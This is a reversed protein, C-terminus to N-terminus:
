LHTITSRRMNTESPLARLLFASYLRKEDADSRVIEFGAARMTEGIRRDLLLSHYHWGKYKPLDLKYIYEGWVIPARRALKWYLYNKLYSFVTSEESLGEANLFVTGNDKVIRRLAKLFRERADPPVYEFAEAFWVGDFAEGVFPLGLLMNVRVFQVGESSLASHGDLLSSLSMDALVVTNGGELLLPAAKAYGGALDLILKGSGTMSLFVPLLEREKDDWDRYPDDYCAVAEKSMEALFQERKRRKAERM